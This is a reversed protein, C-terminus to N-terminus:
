SAFYKHRYQIIIGIIIDDVREEGKGGKVGGGGM